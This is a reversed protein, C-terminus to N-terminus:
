KNRDQLLDCLMSKIDKLEQNLNNIQQQMSLSKERRKKYNIVENNDIRLIANTSMDRVFGKDNEVIKKM